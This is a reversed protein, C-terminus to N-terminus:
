LPGELKDFRLGTQAVRTGRWVKSSYLRGRHVREWRSLYFNYALLSLLWGDVGGALTGIWSYTDLLGALIFPLFFFLLTALILYTGHRSQARYDFPELSQGSSLLAQSKGRFGRLRYATVASGVALGVGGFVEYGEASNQAVLLISSAVVIAVWFLMSPAGAVLPKDERDM